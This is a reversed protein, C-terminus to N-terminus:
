AKEPMSHVGYPDDFGCHICRRTKANMVCAGVETWDTYLTKCDECRYRLACPRFLTPPEYSFPSGPSHAVFTSRVHLCAMSHCASFEILSRLMAGSLKAPDPLAASSEYTYLLFYQLLLFSYKSFHGKNFLM